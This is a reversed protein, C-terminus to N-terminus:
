FNFLSADTNSAASPLKRMGIREKGLDDPIPMGKPFEYLVYKKEDGLISSIRHKGRQVSLYTKKNHKFLHIYLEGDVEQDLQKSGEYYGKENIDQVFKDEPLGNRILQKAETSLQHPTMLLIKKPACFNRIRRIIDRKDSGMAGTTICGTTPLMGVYDVMCVHIEYGQAELEIIYNCLHRYTWQTPDVRRLKIHYGNVELRKKVYVTMEDESTDVINVYENTEDYKLKQYLFQLNNSISDEFSIRLLLPKKTPDLMHPVNYQAFQAFVSLSFGTKYKHQLAPLIWYEGRRFGGQTMENIDQWGCQLIGSNDSNTKVEKFGERLSNEDGIDIDSMVAPDKVNSQMQLPELQAQIELLFQNIDKIKDRKFKFTYSAKDLIENIKEERFHNNIAKRLNVINRKLQNEPIDENIGQELISFFQEDHKCNIRLQQLLSAKDYEHDAPNNCMENVTAKLGILLERETNIGSQFEPIQVTDLVTRVLDASNETKIPLQSERYLLTISKVLLLRSDM